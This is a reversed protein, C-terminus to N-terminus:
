QSPARPLYEMRTPSQDGIMGPQLSALIPFGVQAPQPGGKWGSHSAKRDHGERQPHGRQPPGPRAELEAKTVIEDFMDAATIGTRASKAAGLDRRFGHSLDEGTAYRTLALARVGNAIAYRPEYRDLYGFFFTCSIYMRQRHFQAELLQLLRRTEEKM